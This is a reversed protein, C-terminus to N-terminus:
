FESSLLCATPLSLHICVLLGTIEAFEAFHLNQGELGLIICLQTFVFSHCVINATFFSLSLPPVSFAYDVQYGAECM